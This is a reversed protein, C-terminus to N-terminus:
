MKPIIPSSLLENISTSMEHISNMYIRIFFLFENMFFKYPYVNVNYLACASLDVFAFEFSTHLKAIIWLDLAATNKKKDKKRLCKQVFNFTSHMCKNFNGTRINHDCLSLLM